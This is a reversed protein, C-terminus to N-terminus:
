RHRGCAHADDFQEFAPGRDELAREPEGQQARRRLRYWAPRRPGTGMAQEEIVFWPAFRTAVDTTGAAPAGVFRWSLPPAGVGFLLMTAGPATVRAVGHAYADRRYAPIGHYCGADLILDFRGADLVEDLRTVDGVHFDATVGAATARRRAAAVAADVYDVGVADWGLSALHVVAAGTGCGLDLFRGAPLDRVFRQVTEPVIDTDWRPSGRAYTLRYFFRGAQERLM